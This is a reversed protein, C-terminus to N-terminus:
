NCPCLRKVDDATTEGIVKDILTTRQKRGVQEVDVVAKLSKDAAWQMLGIIYTLTQKCTFIGTVLIPFQSFCLQPSHMVKSHTMKNVEGFLAFQQRVMLQQGIVGGIQTEWNPIHIHRLRYLSHVLEDILYFVQHLLVSIDVYM